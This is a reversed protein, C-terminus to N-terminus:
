NVSSIEFSNYLHIISFISYALIRLNDSNKIFDSVIPLFHEDLFIIHLSKYNEIILHALKIIDAKIEELEASDDAIMHVLFPIFKTEGIISSVEEIKSQITNSLSSIFPLSDNVNKEESGDQNSLISIIANIDDFPNNFLSKDKQSESSENSKESIKRDLETNNYFRQFAIHSTTFNDKYEM